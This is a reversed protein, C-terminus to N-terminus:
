VLIDAYILLFGGHMYSEARFVSDLIHTKNFDPNFM